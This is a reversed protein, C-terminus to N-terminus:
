LMPLKHVYRNRVDAIKLTFRAYFFKLVDLALLCVCNINVITGTIFNRMSVIIIIM